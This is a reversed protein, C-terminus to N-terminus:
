AYSLREQRAMLHRLRAELDANAAELGMQVQGAVDGQGGDVNVTPTYNVVIGGGASGGGGVASGMRASLPTTLDPGSEIGEQLTSMIAQGSRTLESLPGVKADSFPLFDRVKDLVDKVANVPAMAVSKIGSVLTNLLNAGIESWNLSKLWDWAATIGKMIWGLPTFNMFVDKVTDWNKVLVYGIAILAAIGAIILGIPNAFMAANMLLMATRAMKLVKTVQLVGGVLFTWAYGGAIAAVKIAILAAATGVIVKTLLPFKQALGAVYLFIPALTSMLANIPPLLVSGVATAMAKVGERAKNLQNLTTGQMAAFEDELSTAYQARDGVLAFANALNDMNALLPSIAGVSESGFLQTMAATQEEADLDGLANLVATIAERPAEQMERALDTPSFGLAGLVEKQKKTAAAGKVLALVFNKGATAAIEPSAGASLLAGSLAAADAAGLGASRFIAGQRQMVQGIDLATANMNNALHNAAAALDEAEDMTLAMGSRWAKLMEGAVDGTTDFAVGMKASVEAFKGWEDRAFGAQAAATYAGIIGERAQGTAVALDVASQAISNLEDPTANAVKNLEALSQEWDAALKVPAALSGALAVADFLQGRLNARRQNNAEIQDMTKGLSAQAKRAKEASAALEQQRRSLQQTSTGATGMQTNLQRLETRQETLKQKLGSAQRKAQEFERRMEKSPNESERMARALETVRNHAKTYERSTEGVSQRLNTLASIDRAQGNLENVRASLANVSGAASTMSKSFSGAIQAGLEFAIQYVRAM